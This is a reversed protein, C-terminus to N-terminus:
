SLVKTIKTLDLRRFEAAEHCWVDLEAGRPEPSSITLDEGDYTIRATGFYQLEMSARERAQAPLGTAHRAFLTRLGPSSPEPTATAGALWAAARAPTV